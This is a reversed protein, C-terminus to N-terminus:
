SVNKIKLFFDEISIIEAEPLVSEKIMKERSPELLINVLELLAPVDEVSYQEAAYAKPVQGSRKSHDAYMDDLTVSFSIRKGEVTDRWVDQPVYITGILRTFPNRLQLRYRKSASNFTTYIEWGCIRLEDITTSWGRWTIRIEPYKLVKVPAEIKNRGEEPIWGNIFCDGGFTSNGSSNEPCNYESDIEFDYGDAM